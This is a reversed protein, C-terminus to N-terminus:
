HRHPLEPCASDKPAPLMRPHGDVVAMSPMMALFTVLLVRAACAAEPTYGRFAFSGAVPPELTGDKAYTAIAGDDGIRMTRGNELSLTSKAFTLREHPTWLTSGTTIDVDVGDPALLCGRPDLRAMAQPEGLFSQTVEGRADLSLVTRAAGSPPRIELALPVIPCANAPAAPRETRCAALVLMFAVCVRADVMAGHNDRATFHAVAPRMFRAPRQTNPNPSIAISAPQGLSSAFFSAADAFGASAFGLALAAVVAAALAALVVVAAALAVAVADGLAVAVALAAVVALADAV